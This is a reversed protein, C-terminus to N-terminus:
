GAVRLIKGWFSSGDRVAPVHRRLWADFGLSRGAAHLSFLFMLMALFIYSWPWEAPDGPLYIGLWLQLVFLLALIGFARVALGLIMSIAFTLEALFVLPGFLSLYPLMFETVFTRHFEFAARTAEQDTWFQLGGSVPLPLKWLMAEFWMCGILVRVVWTGLHKGARQEPDERWNQWAIAISGVLLAWFLALILYRWNGLQLYDDTTATLFQWLDTIPNKSMFSTESHSLRHSAM